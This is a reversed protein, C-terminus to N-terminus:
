AGPGILFYHNQRGVLRKGLVREGVMESLVCDMTSRKGGAVKFADRSTFTVRDEALGMIKGRMEGGTGRHFYNSNAAYIRFGEACYHDRTGQTRFYTEMSDALGAAYERDGYALHIDRIARALEKGLATLKRKVRKHAKKVPVAYGGEVLRRAWQKVPTSTGEGIVKQM